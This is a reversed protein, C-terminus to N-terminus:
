KAPEWVQSICTTHNYMELTGDKDFGDVVVNYAKSNAKNGWRTVEKYTFVVAYYSMVPIKAGRIYSLKPASDIGESNELADLAGNGRYVKYTGTVTAKDNRDYTIKFTKDSKLDIVCSEAEVKYKRGSISEMVPDFAVTRAAADLSDLLQQRKSADPCTGKFTLFSNQARCIVLQLVSAAGGETYAIQGLTLVNGNKDTIQDSPLVIEEPSKGELAELHREIIEDSTLGNDDAHSNFMYAAGEVQDLYYEKGNEESAVWAAPLDISFGDFEYTKIGEEVKGSFKPKELTAQEPLLEDLSQVNTVAFAAKEASSGCGTLLAAALLSIIIKKM